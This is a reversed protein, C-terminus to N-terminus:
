GRVVILPYLRSERPRHVARTWWRAACWGHRHHTAFIVGPVGSVVTKAEEISISSITGRSLWINRRRSPCCHLIYRLDTSGSLNGPPETTMLGVADEIAVIDHICVHLLM